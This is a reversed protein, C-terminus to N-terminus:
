ALAPHALVTDLGAKFIWARNTANHFNADFGGIYLVRPEDAFPSLAFARPAELVPKGQSYTPGNIEAVTYSAAGIGGRRIAYCGGAYFGNWTVAASANAVSVEFGVIHIV